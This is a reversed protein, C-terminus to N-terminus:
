YVRLVYVQFLVNLDQKRYLKKLDHEATESSFYVLPGFPWMDHVLTYRAVKLLISWPPGKQKSNPRFFVFNTSSISIKSGTLNRQFGNLRKLSTSFTEALRLGSHGDQKESQCSFSSSPLPRLSRAEQWTENCEKWCRWLLLRFHSLWDSALIAMKNKQDAQFVCVLYLVNLDQKSKLKTSNQEATESSFYFIDWGILPWSPWRTKGILGFVCVEYLVNLDQKSDLKM